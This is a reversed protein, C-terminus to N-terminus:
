QIIIKRSIVENNKKVIKVLYVGAKLNNLSVNVEVQPTALDETFLTEGLISVVQVSSVPFSSQVTFQNNTVPNPLISLTNDKGIQNIGNTTKCDCWHKGLSDFTNAPLSDYELLAYFSDPVGNTSTNGYTIMVSRDVGFKVTHKRVLTKNETLYRGVGTVYPKTDTWGGPPTYNPPGQWNSPRIGIEGFIDIDKWTGNNQKKQLSIADDGNWFVCNGGPTPPVTGYAFPALATAKKRLGAWVMTDQGAPITDQIVVMVKYSDITGRLNFVYQIDQDSFSSGNSWRILRYFNDLVIPAGTPNYFEIAKNNNWGEVYESIFIDSCNTQAKLLSGVMLLLTFLLLKKM